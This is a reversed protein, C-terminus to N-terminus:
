PFYKAHNRVRAGHDALQQYAEASLRRWDSLYKLNEELEDRGNPAMLAVAVGPHMLAFRYWDAAPPSQFEPPDDPTPKMLEGWRTCTFVVVPLGLASTTPFVDHEAGRHAANYRVMLLDLHGTAAYAAALSRQHSTLGISRVQGRQKAAELVGAAGNPGVIQNWEDQHEVYYYTAVDIVDTALAEMTAELERRATDATRASFQVAIQVESRRSGLQRVAECLGDDHGCWNLYTVGWEIASLVDDVDLKTNGRTAM